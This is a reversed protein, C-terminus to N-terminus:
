TGAIAQALKLVSAFVPETRDKGRGLISVYLRTGIDGMASM